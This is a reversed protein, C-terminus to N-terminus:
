RNYIVKGDDTISLGLHELGLGELHELVIDLGLQDIIDQITKPEIGMAIVEERSFMVALNGLSYTQGSITDVLIDTIYHNEYHHIVQQRFNPDDYVFMDFLNSSFGIVPFFNAIPDIPTTSTNSNSPQSNSWRTEFHLHVATSVGTNGMAGIYQGMAVNDNVYVARSRLHGYRHQIWNYGNLNSTNIYIAEGYEGVWSSITVTGSAFAVISDGEVGNIRPAIDIGNHTPRSPPRFLSWEPHLRKTSVPVPWTWKQVPTPPIKSSSSFLRLQVNSFPSSSTNFTSVRAGYPEGWFNLPHYVSRNPLVDLIYSYDDGIQNTFYVDITGMGYPFAITSLGMWRDSHSTKYYQGGIFVSRGSSPNPMSAYPVTMNVTGTDFRSQVGGRRPAEINKEEFFELFEEETLYIETINGDEDFETLVKTELNLEFTNRNVRDEIHLRTNIENTVETNTAVLDWFAEENELYRYGTSEGNMNFFSVKGTETNFYAVFPLGDIASTLIERISGLNENDSVSDFDNASVSVNAFLMISSLFIAIFKKM